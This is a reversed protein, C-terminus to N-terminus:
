PNFHFLNVHAMARTETGTGVRARGLWREFAETVHDDFVIRDRVSIGDETTLVINGIEDVDIYVGDGLYDKLQSM